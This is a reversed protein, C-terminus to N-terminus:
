IHFGFSAAIQRAVSMVARSGRGNYLEADVFYLAFAAVIITGLLKM